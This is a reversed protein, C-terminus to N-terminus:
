RDEQEIKNQIFQYLAAGAMGFYALFSGGIVLWKVGSFISTVMALIHSQIPYLAMVLTAGINELYDFLGAAIPLLNTFGIWNSSNNLNQVFWSIGTVLFSVYVLPYVLDFTWRAHIYAQRGNAGYEEAAELLEGPNYFFSTDPSITDGTVKEASAAQGPLVFIMFLVMILLTLMMVWSKSIKMLWASLKNVM